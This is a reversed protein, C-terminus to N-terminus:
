GMAILFAHRHLAEKLRLDTQEEAVEEIHKSKAKKYAASAAEPTLYSGIHIYRGNMYVRAIYRNGRSITVGQPYKGRSAKSDVLLGNVKRTVFLCTSPSYIKNNPVLLDKDIEKNSWDQRKMWGRFNMFSHWAKDVTCGEYTPFKYRETHTYCRRLIGSWIRYYPCMLMSNDYGKMSINYPSDNIGIGVVLRRQCISEIDAPVEIFVKKKM